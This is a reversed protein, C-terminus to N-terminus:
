AVQREPDEPEPLQPPAAVAKAKAERAIQAEVALLRRMCADIVWGSLGHHMPIEYTGIARRAAAEVRDALTKEIRITISRFGLKEQRQAMTGM